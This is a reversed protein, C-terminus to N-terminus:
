RPRVIWRCGLLDVESPPAGAIALHVTVDPTAPDRVPRIRVGQTGLTTERVGQGVLSPRFRLGTTRLYQGITASVDSVAIELTTLRAPGDQRAARDARTWEASSADHEILFPPLELDLKPAAALRWRVVQGDPRIREGHVPASLDSGRERLADVDARLDDSAVAWTALGGGAALARDAPAGIWSAAALKPDFIGILELYTDGLWVLRNFTGLAEHRGGGGPTLGLGSELTSVADDPDAVAIVLHDIGILV